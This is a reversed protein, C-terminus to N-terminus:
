LNNEINYSVLSVDGPHLYSHSYESFAVAMSVYCTLAHSAALTAATKYKLLFFNERYKGM